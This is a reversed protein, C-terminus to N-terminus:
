QSSCVCCGTLFGRTADPFGISRCHDICEPGYDMCLPCGTLVGGALLAGVVFLVGLVLLIARKM